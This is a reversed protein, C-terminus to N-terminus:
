GAGGGGGGAGGGGGGSAGGGAGSATGMTSTTTAVMSSFAEGFAAPSFARTGGGHYIYWPVYMAHESEPIVTALERYFKTSMGFVVGYVLYDSIRSLLDNRGLSKFENSKLYKQLAKWHRAETEGTATRHYILFSLVLVAVGAAGPIIAWPGFLFGAGIALLIMVVGLAVSFYSGRISAKDFWEEKEGLGAVEKKWKKFFKIFDRRKKKITDLSISDAGGGIDGFIFQILSKEYGRLDSAHQEWHSRKLDWHYESKEKMGGWFSKKEVTEERLEVFGRRALDLMTGVLDKGAVQRNNLLYGVLAPPTDGPVESTIELFRPLAPRRGYKMYLHRWGLFGALALAGMLWRGMRRRKEGAAAREQAAQRKRNAEEVWAAEEAMIEGRVAGASARANPFLRPPYLARIELYTRGPLHSCQALVVGEDTIRSEAWLPGHLWENIDERSIPEPPVLRLTINSQPTEWDEGLFKYYLVAADEHRVVADRARYRLEFSRSENSARFYWTVRIRGSTSEVSYTGPAESNSLEYPRGDELVEFDDFTVRGGRPIDRYAFSFSGNFNYTRAESVAMSGDSRLHADIEVGSIRYSKASVPCHLTMSLATAVLLCVALTRVVSDRRLM